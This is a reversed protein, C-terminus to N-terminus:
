VVRMRMRLRMCKYQVDYMKSIVNIYQVFNKEGLYYIFYTNFCLERTQFNAEAPLKRQLIELGRNTVKQQQYILVSVVLCGLLINM